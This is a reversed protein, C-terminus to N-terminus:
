QESQEYGMSQAKQQCLQKKDLEVALIVKERKKKEGGDGESGNRPLKVLIKIATTFNIDSGDSLEKSAKTFHTSPRLYNGLLCTNM